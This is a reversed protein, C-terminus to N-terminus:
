PDCRKCPSYGKALVESRTGSFSSKNHISIEGVSSCSPHHFKMTNTNLVYTTQFETYSYDLSDSNSIVPSISSDTIETASPTTSNQSITATETEVFNYVINDNVICLLANDTNQDNLINAEITLNEIKSENLMEVLGLSVDKLSDVLNDWSQKCNYNGEIAFLCTQLIGEKWMDFVISGDQYYVSYSIGSDNFSNSVKQEILPILIMAAAEQVSVTEETSINANNTALAVRNSFSGGGAAAVLVMDTNRDDVLMMLAAIDTIGASELENAVSLSFNEISGVLDNWKALSSENGAIAKDTLLALGDEWFIASIVSDEYSVEYNSFVSAVATEVIEIAESVDRSETSDQNKSKSSNCSVLLIILVLVWIWRNKTQSKIPTKESTQIKGCYPCVNSGEVVPKYCFKCSHYTFDKRSDFSTANSDEQTTQLPEKQVVTKQPDPIAANHVTLNGSAPKKKPGVFIVSIAIPVIAVTISYINSIPYSADSLHLATGLSAFVLVSAIWILFGLFIRLLINAFGAPKSKQSKGCHPCKKTSADIYKHCHTCYM